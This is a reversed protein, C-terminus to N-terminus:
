SRDDGEPVIMACMVVAIVGLSLQHLTAQAMLGAVVAACTLAISFFPLLMGSARLLGRLPWILAAALFLMNSLTM